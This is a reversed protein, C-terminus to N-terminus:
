YLIKPKNKIQIVPVTAASYELEAASSWSARTISIACSNSAVM